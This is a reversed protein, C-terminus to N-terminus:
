IRDSILIKCLQADKESKFHFDMKNETPHSTYRDGPLGFIELIDGCTENWWYEKQGQWPVSVIHVYGENRAPIRSDWNRHKKSVQV